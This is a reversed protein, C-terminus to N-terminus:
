TSIVLCNFRSWSVILDHDRSFLPSICSRKPSGYTVINVVKQINLRVFVKGFITGTLGSLSSSGSRTHTRSPSGCKGSGFAPTAAPRWRGRRSWRYRMGPTGTGSSRVPDRYLCRSIRANLPWCLGLGLCSWEPHFPFPNLRQSFDRYSILLCVLTIFLM